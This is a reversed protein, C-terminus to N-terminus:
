DGPPPPLTPPPDTPTASSVFPASQAGVNDTVILTVPYSGGVAYPHSTTVGTGTFGDGFDWAYSAISGDPDGSTSADFSCTVELCSVVTFAATPVVNPPPASVTHAETDFSGGFSSNGEYTATITRTGTGGPTYSCGGATVTASCNGGLPDTVQVIGTPTGSGSIVTFSVTVAVGPDSPDPSDSMITTTTAAPPPENVTHTDTASSSAYSANGQFTATLTRRGVTNLVLSCSGSGGVIPIICSDVGDSVTATGEPTGRGSRVSLTVTFSQGPITNNPIIAEFRTSTSAASRSVTVNHTVSATAGDDDTVTLSVPYTGGSPFEHDPDRRDSTRGDGFNWMRDEIRGDPDGSRDEFKCDLEDCTVVFEATPVQNAPVAVTHTATGSSQAFGPGGSYTATLTRDGPNNLTLQCSGIGGSLTGTCTPGNNARVTVTGTPTGGGSTVQFDVTFTSGAMSPDPTDGTITTTTAAPPPPSGSTVTHPVSGASPSFGPGGSYTATLTRDGVTNLTLQCSGSGGNLSGTCTPTGGSVSVTVSGTPTGGASSVQFNVTFTSGSVSPDPADSTITTTTAAPPPPAAATVTHPENASSGLLGPAGAYTATLTRAGVTTLTLQCGGAGNDLPGSCSQVGDSVTVTGTPTPGESTVRFSVAIPAGAGSPDPSASTFSTSTAVPELVIANSTAQAYGPATFILTRSGPAGSISLDAFTAKGSGDTSVQRTGGLEGGGSGIAATVLVGAQAVDSGRSDRLQVVPQRGLPIGNRASASPQTLIFLSPPAAAAATARFSAVGVGSVVADLRQQGLAAGLTWRTSTRGEGDTTTIEPTASGGGTAVVWSVATQPVGNGDADILQVVLEDPLTTGAAATQDNGSVITLRSADGPLATHTFTVPSGALDASAVTSQQGVAPGLIRDVRSRGDEDTEVVAASVSGGGVAAWNIEVGAVPNGFNDTVEVVLRDDLPQSVHGTQDQGAVEAMTNANEPLAMASFSTQIPATGDQVVRAQGTQRGITTGLVLTTGARGDADTTKEVPVVAAGAGASSFDFAVTAGSVKRGRSDTVEVVLPKTLREGVLGRQNDGDVVAITAPEGENPLVIGEGGGCGALLALGLAM